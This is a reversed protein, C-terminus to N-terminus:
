ASSAANSIRRAFSGVLAKLSETNFPKELRRNPIQDLFMRTKQTFAGGTLFVVRPVLAPAIEGLQEYLEVGSLVPMMLDCLIVDFTQESALLRLAERADQLPTVSHGRLARRISALVMPDDDVVLVRASRTSSPDAGVTKTAPVVAPRLPLLVRFLTGRGLESEVEIKGGMGHVIGHCISLGLGTGVGVAKTTFFPEFLRPLHEKAIGSGTDSIEVSAMTERARTTVRIEHTDAAGEPTAQAANLLLNLFVQGLRGEHAEILPLAGFDKVLRARHRIENWAMNICSELTRKIDVADLQDSEGRSFVKLDRTTQGIRRAGDKAQALAELIEARTAAAPEDARALESLAFAINATVYALPNNVEHAVGAALQGVAALRESSVLRAQAQELERTRDAVRRELEAAVERLQEQTQHALALARELDQNKSSLENQAATLGRHLENMERSSVMLSREITYRDQDAEFYTKSVREILARLGVRDLGTSEADIALRKLQRALLPHM